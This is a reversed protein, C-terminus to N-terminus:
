RVALYAFLMFFLILLAAFPVMRDMRRKIRLLRQKGKFHPDAADTLVRDFVQKLVAAPPKLSRLATKITQGDLDLLTQAKKLRAHMRSPQKRLIKGASETSLGLPMCLVLPTKLSDPLRLIRILADTMSFFIRTKRLSEPNPKKRLKRHYFQLCLLDAQRWLATQNHRADTFLRTSTLWDGIQESLLKVTEQHSATHTFFLLYLEAAHALYFTEVAAPNPLSQADSM